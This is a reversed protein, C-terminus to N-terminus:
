TKERGGGDECWAEPLGCTRRGARTWQQDEDIGFAPVVLTHLEESSELLQQVRGLDKVEHVSAGVEPLFCTFM